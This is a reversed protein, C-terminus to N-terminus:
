DDGDLIQRLAAEAEGFQFAFGAEELRAPVARTSALLLEDAMEGLALRLAFAPAPLVTPRGMIRGLTSVFERNRLPQPAVLNYAGRSEHSTLLFIAARVVDQLHIWSMFQRGSGLNGGLGWSFPGLMRELAGGGPALIMGFRLALVRIGAESASAPAAEWRQCVKALFGEGPPSHEVLEQDGRDGYYGVASAVMLVRPPASLCAMSEAIRRTTDVRSRLIREKRASTWRGSAINEGALHIVADAGAFLEADYRQAQPDWTRTEGSGRGLSKSGPRLWRVVRHGADELAACLAKGVLGSSGTVIVTLGTTGAATM